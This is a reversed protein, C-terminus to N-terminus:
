RPNLGRRSQTRAIGGKRQFDGRPKQVEETGAGRGWRTPTREKRRRNGDRWRVRLHPCECAETRHRKQEWDMKEWAMGGSGYHGSRDMHRHSKAGCRLELREQPGCGTPRVWDVGWLMAFEVLGITGSREMYGIGERKKLQIFKVRSM